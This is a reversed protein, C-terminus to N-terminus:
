LVEDKAKRACISKAQLLNLSNCPLFQALLPKLSLKRPVPQGHQDFAGKVLYQLELLTSKSMKSASTQSVFMGTRRGLVQSWGADGPPYAM